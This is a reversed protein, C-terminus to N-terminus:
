GRCINCVLGVVGEFPTNNDIGSGKCSDCEGKVLIEGNETVEMTAEEKDEETAHAM